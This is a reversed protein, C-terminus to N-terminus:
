LYKGDDPKLHMVVKGMQYNGGVANSEIKFRVLRGSNHMFTVQEDPTSPSAVITRADSTVDTGRANARSIMTATLNGAQVFDPEVLAVSMTREIGPGQGPAILSMESTTFYSQIPNINSGNIADYGNEHQWLTYLSTTADATVGTVMPRRFVQAYLGSSRGGEPLATDYWVNERTNFIVARNCETASGHPYCWWIEGYRPIKFAFVKGRQRYNLNDFFYNQNEVNPMDRLVGNFFMFRDVGPWYYIGDYEIVGSPSLISSQSTITDFDWLATGGVFTVRILSDSTWLLGAPSNGSGGRLPLGKVIKSSAIRADGADGTSFNTPNNADSWACFGENGFAFLYPHLAVIGGSVSIGSIATLAGSGLVDGAYVPRDTDACLCFLNPAAHGILMTATGAADWIADFQWTNYVDATFGSPTRDVVPGANGSGDIAVQVLGDQWGSHVYTYGNNPQGHLQRSIGPLFNSMASYGGIKRPRGYQFRCWQGDVYSDSNFRTNDRQIGPKFDWVVPTYDSQQPQDPM